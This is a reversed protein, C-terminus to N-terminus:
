HLLLWGSDGPGEAKSRTERNVLLDPLKGAYEPVGTFVKRFIQQVEGMGRKEGPTALDFIRKIQFVGLRKLFALGDNRM